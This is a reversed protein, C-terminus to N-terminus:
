FTWRIRLSVNRGPEDAYLWFANMYERYSTNLLNTCSVTFQLESTGMPLTTGAEAQVLTYANPAGFVTAQYARLQDLQTQYVEPLTEPTITPLDPTRIQEFVYQGRIQVFTQKLNGLKPFERRLTASIRDAPMGILFQEKTLDRARLFSAQGELEWNQVISWTGSLDVGALLADTQTYNYVPFTGRITVRPLPDPTIFIFNQFYHLYPAASFSFNQNLRISWEGTWKIGTEPVLTTDGEELRAVGHHLGESLLENVHPPRMALGLHSRVNMNDGLKWWGGISASFTHFPFEFSERVRLRTFRISETFRGDYRIGAEYVRKSTTWKISTFAGGSYSDYFPLLPRVGTGPVNRNEQYLGSVGTVLEWSENLTREWVLEATHTTLDLDLAPIDSRGGRRIDFEQRQNQQYGYILQLDDNETPQWNIRGKLLRHKVQQRPNMIEYENNDTFQPQQRDFSELLDTINGIHGARLIGMETNFQSAFVETQWRKRRYALTASINEEQAGTNTLWYDPARMDGARKLSGQVRWSLGKVPKVAGELRLAGIGQRGNAIGILHAEGSFPDTEPMDPPNVLIAGAIADNGYRIAAPGKLVTLRSAQFPDLVPAHEQGWQQDEQRLGNNRIHIRNSHLGHIVPKVVQPGAQITRIGPLEQLAQALPLGRTTAMIRGALVEKTQSADGPLKHESIVVEELMVSQKELHFNLKQNSGDVTHSIELNQFNVHTCVLTLPGRCLKDIVYNGLSDTFVGRKLEPIFVQAYSVPQHSAEAVVKGSLKYTCTSSSQAALQHFIINGLVIGWGILQSMSIRM